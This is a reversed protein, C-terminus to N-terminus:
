ITLQNNFKLRFSDEENLRAEPRSQTELRRKRRNEKREKNGGKITSLVGSLISKAVYNFFSKQNNREFYIKGKRFFIAYKPNDSRIIFNNAIFSAVSEGFGRVDMTKKDILRISLKDYNFFLEGRAVDNDGDFNFTLLNNTGKKIKIFAVNELFPNMSTLDLENLVGSARFEDRPSKLDFKVSFELGAENMLKAKAFFKMISDRAIITSDNTINKGELTLGDFWIIGPEIAPPVYERYQIRSNELKLTDLMFVFPLSRIGSVPLSTYHDPLLNYTKDRYDDGIFQYFTAKSISVRNQSLLEPIRIHELYASDFVWQFRDTQHGVKAAFIEEDFQPAMFGSDITIAMNKNSFRIGAAGLLYLSDPTLYSYDSIKLNFIDSYLFKDGFVKNASDVLINKFGADIRNLQFTETNKGKHDQVKLSADAIEVNAVQIEFLQDSILKFLDIENNVKTKQLGPVFERTLWLDPEDVNIREMKLKRQTLLKYFDIGKMDLNKLVIEVDSVKQQQKQKQNLGRGNVIISEAKIFGDKTSGSLNGLSVDFDEGSSAKIPRRASFRIDSAFFLNPNTMNSTSDVFFSNIALDFDGLLLERTGFTSGGFVELDANNMSFQKIDVSKFTKLIQERIVDGKLVLKERNSVQKTFILRYSPKEFHIAGAQLINKEYLEGIAIGSVSFGPVKARVIFNENEPAPNRPQWILDTASILSDISSIKLKSMEISYSNDPLNIALNESSLEINEAEIKNTKGPLTPQLCDISLTLGNFAIKKSSKGPFEQVYFNGNNLKLHAIQFDPLFNREMKQRSQDALVDQFYGSPNSIEVNNVEIFHHYYLAIFDIGKLVIDNVDLKLRDKDKLFFPKGAVSKLSDIHLGSINMLSDKTNIMLKDFFLQHISDPAMVALNSANIEIGSSYFVKNQNKSADKNLLFDTVVMSINPSSFQDTFIGDSKGFDFKGGDIKCSAVSLETLFDSIERYLFYIDPRNPDSFTGDGAHITLTPEQIDLTLVHLKNELFDQKFNEGQLELVPIQLNLDTSQANKRYGEILVDCLELQSTRSDLDFYGIKIHRASKKLFFEQENLILRVDDVFFQPSRTDFSASDIKLNHLYLTVDPLYFDELSESEFGDIKFNASNILIEGVEIPYFLKSLEEFIQREFKKRDFKAREEGKAPHYLIDPENIIIESVLLKKDIFSQFDFGTLKILPVTLEVWGYEDYDARSSDPKVVLGEIEITRDDISLKINNFTLNHSKGLFEFHGSKLSIGLSDSLFLRDLTQNSLSDVQFNSLLLSINNIKISETSDANGRIIELYGNNLEFNIIKLLTLYDKLYVHLTRQNLDRNSLSDIGVIINLKPGPIHLKLGPQGIYFRNIVLEKKRLVNYIGFGAFHLEPIKLEVLKHHNTNGLTDRDQVSTDSFISLDYIVLDSKFLNFRIKRYNFDYM